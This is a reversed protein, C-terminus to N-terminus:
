KFIYLLIKFSFLNKFFSLLDDVLAIWFYWRCFVVRGVKELNDGERGWGVQKQTKKAHLLGSTTKADM